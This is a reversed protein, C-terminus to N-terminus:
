EIQISVTRINGEETDIVVEMLTSRFFFEIALDEISKLENPDSDLFNQAQDMYEEGWIEVKPDSLLMTYFGKQSEVSESHIKDFNDSFIEEALEFRNKYGLLSSASQINKNNGYFDPLIFENLEVWQSQKKFNLPGEPSDDITYQSFGFEYQLRISKPKPQIEFGKGELGEDNLIEIKITDTLTSKVEFYSPNVEDFLIRLSPTTIDLQAFSQQSQCAIIILIIRM